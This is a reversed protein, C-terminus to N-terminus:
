LFDILGEEKKLKSFDEVLFKRMAPNYLSAAPHLTPMIRVDLGLIKAKIFEGRVAMISRFDRGALRFIYSTSHRGLTIITKPRIVAIQRNLYPSCSDIEEQTPDRNGPPRCKVVNTIFVRERSLGAISLLENLFAGAAGVFPRGQEDENRGPAEGILMIEAKKDGEGPVANKRNKHLPCKKCNRIEEAIKDLDEIL